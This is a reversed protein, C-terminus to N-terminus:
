PDLMFPAREFPGDPLNLGHRGNLVAASPLCVFRCGRDKEYSGYVKRTQPGHIERRHREVPNYRSQRVRGPCESSVPVCITSRREAATAVSRIRPEFAAWLLLPM